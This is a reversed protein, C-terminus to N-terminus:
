AAASNRGKVRCSPRHFPMSNRRLRRSIMLWRPPVVFADDSYVLLATQGDRRARLLDDIKYRARELRSPKLDQVDMKSSLDLVIVLPSLNRFVPAPLREWVPGSLALVALLGTLALLILPTRLNVALKEDLVHKRLAPDVYSSWDKSEGSTRQFVFFAVPLLLAWLWEPRLFHFHNLASSFSSM